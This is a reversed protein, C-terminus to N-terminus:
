LESRLEERQARQAREREIARREKAKRRCTPGCFRQHIVNRPFTGGCTECVFTAAALPPTIPNKM